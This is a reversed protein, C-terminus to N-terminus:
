SSSTYRKLVSLPATSLILTPRSGCPKVTHGCGPRKENPCVPLRRQAFALRVRPYEGGGLHEPLAAVGRARVPSEPLRRQANLFRRRVADHPFLARMVATEIVERNLAEESRDHESQSAHAGCNCSLRVAPDFPNPM